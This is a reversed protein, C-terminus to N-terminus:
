TFTSGLRARRISFTDNKWETPAINRYDAQVRGNFQIAWNGTGDDFVLGDKFSAYVPEGKSQGKWADGKANAPQEQMTHLETSLTQIQQQLAELKARVDVTEDAMANQATLLASVAILALKNPKLVDM